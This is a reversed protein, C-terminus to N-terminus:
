GSERFVPIGKICFMAQPVFDLNGYVNNLYGRLVLKGELSSMEDPGSPDSESSKWQIKFDIFIDKKKYSFRLCIIGVFNIVQSYSPV